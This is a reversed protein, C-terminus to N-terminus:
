TTERSKGFAIPPAGCPDSNPDNVGGYMAAQFPYPSPQPRPQEDREPQRQPRPPMDPWPAVSPPIRGPRRVMRRFLSTM